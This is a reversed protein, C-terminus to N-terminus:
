HLSGNFVQSQIGGATDTGTVTIKIAGTAGNKVTWTTTFKTPSYKIDYLRYSALGPQKVDIHPWSTM